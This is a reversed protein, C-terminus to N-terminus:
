KSAQLLESIKQSQYLIHCYGNPNKRLYNQHYEEARYFTEAPAIETTIPDKFIGSRDLLRLTEEAAAKQSPTQYFIASRYQSGVDNGQRNLTTPDHHTWFVELLKRYSIRAPDFTIEIAEAHGTDSYCVQDYTPNKLKGGTYGVQTSVVGELEGFVKQVGWFCGAGFVAKEMVCEEAQASAATFVAAALIATFISRRM